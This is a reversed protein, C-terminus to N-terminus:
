APKVFRISRRTYGLDEYFPVSLPSAVYTDLGFQEAGRARGWEEAASMLLRGIGRRRYPGAVALADIEARVRSVDRVVQRDASEVPAISRVVVTGVVLGDVEAVFAASNEVTPGSLDQAFWEALGVGSPIRFHDSNLEVLHQGIAIWLEALAAADHAEAPRILTDAM